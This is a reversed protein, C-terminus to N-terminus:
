KFIWMLVPKKRRQADTEAKKSGTDNRCSGGSLATIIAVCM